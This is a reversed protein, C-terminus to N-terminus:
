TLRTWICEAVGCDSFATSSTSSLRRWAYALGRSMSAIVFMIHAWYMAACANEDPSSPIM